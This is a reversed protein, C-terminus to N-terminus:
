TESWLKVSAGEPARLERRKVHPEPVKNDMVWQTLSDFNRCEKVLNFNPNPVVRPDHGPLHEEIDVWDFAIIDLEARCMLDQLLMHLCHKQHAIYFDSKPKSGFYHEYHREKRLENLCHIQHFVDVQVLYQDEGRNWSLPAKVAKKIDFNANNIAEKSVTFIEGSYLDWAEDVQPSPDQRYISTNDFVRGELPVLHKSLDFGEFMPEAKKYAVRVDIVAIPMSYETFSNMGHYPIHEECKVHMPQFNGKNRWLVASIGLATVNITTLGIITLLLRRSSALKQSLPEDGATESETGGPVAVYHKEKLFEFMATRKIV